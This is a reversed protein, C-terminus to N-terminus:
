DPPLLEIEFLTPWLKGTVFIRGTEPDHAIGNLVDVGQAPIDEPALLGTLDIWGNVVGSAPDIRAIRDTQYVNAWIEGDIWELENLYQVPDDGDLVDIQGIAKAAENVATDDLVNLVRTEVGGISKLENLKEGNIDTAIVRCGAKAFAEASARGIGQAAATIFAVKGQLNAM